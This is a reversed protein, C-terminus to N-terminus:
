RFWLSSCALFPQDFPQKPTPTTMNPKRNEFSFCLLSFTVGGLPQVLLSALHVQFTLLGEQLFDAFLGLLQPESIEATPDLLPLFAAIQALTFSQLADVSPCFVVEYKSCLISFISKLSHILDRVADRFLM